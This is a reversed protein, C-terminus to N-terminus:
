KAVGRTVPKLFNISNPRSSPKWWKEGLMTENLSTQRRMLFKGTLSSGVLLSLRRCNVQYIQNLSMQAFHCKCSAVNTHLSMQTFRCKRLTVNTHLSMQTFGCKCSAVNAHLSMQAFRCKRSTVNSHLSMQMFCCKRLHCTLNLWSLNGISGDKERERERESLGVECLHQECLHRKWSIDSLWLILTTM